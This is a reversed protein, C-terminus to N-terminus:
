LEPEIHKRKVYKGKRWTARDCTNIESNRYLLWRDRRGQVVKGKLNNKKELRDDYLKELLTFGKIEEHM